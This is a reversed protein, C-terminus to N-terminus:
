KNNFLFFSSFWVSNCFPLNLVSIVFILYYALIVLAFYVNKWYLMCSYSQAFGVISVGRGYIFHM